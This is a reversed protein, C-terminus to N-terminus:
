GKMDNIKRRDYQNFRRQDTEMVESMSICVCVCVKVIDRERKCVCVCVCVCVGGGKCM